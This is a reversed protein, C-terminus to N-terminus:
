DFDALDRKMLFHNSIKDEIHEIKDQVEAVAQQLFDNKPISDIYEKLQRFQDTTVNSQKESSYQDLLVFEKIKKTFKEDLSRSYQTHKQVQDQLMQFDILLAFNDRVKPMFQQLLPELLAATLSQLLSLDPQKLKYLEQLQM